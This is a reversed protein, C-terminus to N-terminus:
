LMGLTDTPWASKTLGERNNPRHFSCHSETTIIAHAIIVFKWTFRLYRGFPTVQLFVGLLILRAPLLLQKYFLWRFAQFPRPPISSKSIPPSRPRLIPSQRFFPPFKNTVRFFTYVHLKLVSLSFLCCCECAVTSPLFVFPFFISITEPPKGMISKKFSVSRWPVFM